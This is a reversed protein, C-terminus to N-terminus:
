CSNLYIIYMNNRKWSAVATSVVSKALDIFHGRPTNIIYKIELSHKKIFSMIQDFETKNELGPDLLVAKKTEECGIIYCNTSLWGVTFTKVLV